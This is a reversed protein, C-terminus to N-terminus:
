YTYFSFNQVNTCFLNLDLLCHDVWNFFTEYQTPIPIHHNSDLNFKDQALKAIDELREQEIQKIIRNNETVL